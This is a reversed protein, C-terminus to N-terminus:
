KLIQFWKSYAQTCMNGACFFDNERDDDECCEVGECCECMNSEMNCTSCGYLYICDSNENCGLECTGTDACYLDLYPCDTDTCCDPQTCVHDVCKGCTGCNSNDRCGVQCKSDDSCYENNLCDDNKVCEPEDGM